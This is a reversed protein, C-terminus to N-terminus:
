KKGGKKDLLKRENVCRKLAERWYPLELGFREKTSHKDLVSYAPRRAATRYESTRCPTIKCSFGCLEKIAMAFDYWSAVGENTCHYIGWDEVGVRGALVEMAMKYVGKALDPAYTPTGVQDYVVKIEEKDALLSLMTKYFNKGVNSYLWSTRIIFFGIKSPQGDVGKHRLTEKYKIVGNEEHEVLESYNGYFHGQVDLEGIAKSKGYVGYPSPFNHTQYPIARCGKGYVYDSSIHILFANHKSASVSLNLPGTGNVAMALEQEKEAGDVNTYAACNIILNIRNEAIFKDVREADTIDLMDKGAYYFKADAPNCIKSLAVGLQGDAGTILVNPLTKKEMRGKKEKKERREM